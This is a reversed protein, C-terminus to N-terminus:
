PSRRGAAWRERIKALQAITGHQDAWYQIYDWNLRENQRDMIAFLDRRGNLCAEGAIWRLAHVIVDETTQVQCLRGSVMQVVQRDFRMRDFPDDRILYLEAVLQNNVSAIHRYTGRIEEVSPETDLYMRSRLRDALTQIQGPKPDILLDVDHPLRPEAYCNTSLSGVLMYPIRLREFAATLISATQYPDM